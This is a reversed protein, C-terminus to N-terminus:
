VSVKGDFGDFNSLEAMQMWSPLSSQHQESLSPVFIGKSAAIVEEECNKDCQNCRSPHQCSTTLPISADSPPSFFGGLPVFSGM